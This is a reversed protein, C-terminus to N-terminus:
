EKRIGVIMKRGEIIWYQVELGQSIKDKLEAPIKSDFTEYSELDMLQATDGTIAIVQAAKKEVIPVDIETDAPKVISRKRDDFIGIAEVRAKAGGHKGSVSVFVDLVKCPEGDIICFKGPKLEKLAAKTTAM